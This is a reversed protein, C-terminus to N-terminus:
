LSLSIKIYFFVLNQNLPLKLFSVQVLSLPMLMRTRKLRFILDDMATIKGKKRSIKASAQTEEVIKQFQRLLVEIVLVLLLTYVAIGAAHLQWMQFAVTPDEHAAVCGIAGAVPILSSLFYAFLIGVVRPGGLAETNTKNGMGKLMTLRVHVQKALFVNNFLVACTQVIAYFLRSLDPRYMSVFMLICGTNCVLALLASQIKLLPGKKTRFDISVLMSLGICLCAATWAM